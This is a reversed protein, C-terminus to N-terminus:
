FYFNQGKLPESKAVVPIGCELALEIEDKMGKTIKDGYLWLEDFVNRYFFEHDNQIGRKRQEPDNDDLALCDVYYPVFPVVDNQTLNIERVIMQISLLNGPIDGSIPHAIYVIKM